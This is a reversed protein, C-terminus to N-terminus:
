GVSDSVTTENDLQHV